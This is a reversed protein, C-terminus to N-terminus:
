DTEKGVSGAVVTTAPVAYGAGHRTQEISIRALEGCLQHTDGGQETGHERQAEGDVHHEFVDDAMAHRCLGLQVTEVNRLHPLEAIGLEDEARFGGEFRRSSRSPSPLARVVARAM